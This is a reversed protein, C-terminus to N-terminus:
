TEGSKKEPERRLAAIEQKLRFLAGSAREQQPLIRFHSDLLGALDAATLGEIRKEQWVKLVNEAIQSFTEASESEAALRLLEATQRRGPASSWVAQFENALVSKKRLAEGAGEREAELAREKEAQELARIDEESPAFLPRYNRPDPPYLNLRQDEPASLQRSKLYFLFGFAILLGAAIVVALYFLILLIM